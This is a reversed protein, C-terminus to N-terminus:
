QSVSSSGHGGAAHRVAVYAFTLGPGLTIGPGPYTGGMISHMDNGIAYLGGIPRNDGDLVQADPDTVLGTAAGIDGPYLRVAYFPAQRIPGLNPNPTQQPDGNHRHYATSGRGFEPDVGTEAYANMAAVTETLAAADIDLVAALAALTPAEILYGDAIFPGLGRGGPRVMGLGYKRLANADAILFAPISPTTQHAQLMARTFLHYSTAENVFRRGSQNVVVTGPKGRDLVFHPFVATSGDRRRRVSVPAWFVHDLAGEGYRAGLALALDHVAGTHGPAGPCHVPVEAPLMAVRRQPHRNFGGTAMIVGRRVGVRRAAVNQRLVVAEVGRPGRQLEAVDTETVIDIGRDLLSLLLRGILANGMVLRTGRSYRMRDAAYRGLLGAAYRFSDWCTTMQLLHGIDNRDVMMGGLVTFEPIPPRVLAFAAGLRRGDFPLPELARGRLTAGEAEQVYDPHAPYPRLKVDSEAELRAIARPANVLFSRRVAESSRNGVVNRLFQEAQELSDQAGIAAAHHTNPVWLTAASLASTGGVHATREVLLVRLGELAAFLAAAMGAGGAGIVVVDYRADQPLTDLAIQM